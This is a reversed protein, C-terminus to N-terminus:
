VNLIHFVYGDSNTQGNEINVNKEVHSQLFNM